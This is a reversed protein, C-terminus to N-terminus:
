FQYRLGTVVDVSSIVNHGNQNCTAANNANICSLVTGNALGNGKETYM